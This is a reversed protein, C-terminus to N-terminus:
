FSGKLIKKFLERGNTRRHKILSNNFFTQISREEINPMDLDAFNYVRAVPQQSVLNRKPKSASKLNKVRYIFYMILM